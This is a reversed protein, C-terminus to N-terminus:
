AADPSTPHTLRDSWDDRPDTLNNAKCFEDVVNAWVAADHHSSATIKENRTTLWGAFGFLAESASLTDDLVEIRTSLPDHVAAWYNAFWGVMLGEDIDDISWNNRLKTECFQEAWHMADTSSRDLDKM